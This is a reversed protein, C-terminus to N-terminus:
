SGTCQHSAYVLVPAAVGGAAPPQRFSGGLQVGADGPLGQPHIVIVGSPPPKLRYSGPFVVNLLAMGAHYPQCSPNQRDLFTVSAPIGDARLRRQLGAPDRLERIHVYINGDALKVVTWAALQVRPPRSAQHGAPVLATVTLIVAAMVGAAVLGLAVPRAVTGPVRRILQRNRAGPPIGGPTPLDRSSSLIQRLIRDEAAADVIDETRRLVAPRAAILRDFETRASM